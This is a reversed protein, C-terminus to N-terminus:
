HAKPILKRIPRYSADRPFQETFDSIFQAVEANSHIEGKLIANVLRRLVITNFQRDYVTPSNSGAVKVIFPVRLDDSAASRQPESLHAFDESTKDRWWHDATVILTTNTELRESLEGLIEALDQDALEINDFYGPKGQTAETGAYPGHPVSLHILKLDYSEDRILRTAQGMMFRNRQRQDAARKEWHLAPLSSFSFPNKIPLGGYAQDIYRSLCDSVSNCRENRFWSWEGFTNEDGFLREYPICWGAAGARKNMDRVDHVLSRESTRFYDKEARGSFASFRELFGPTNERFVRGYLLSPVAERTDQAPPYVNTAVFSESMLKEFAPLRIEDPRNTLAAYDLEDFVVWVVEQSRSDGAVVPETANVGFSQPTEASILHASLQLNLVIAAPLLALLLTSVANEWRAISFGSRATIVATSVVIGVPLVFYVIPRDTIYIWNVLEFSFSGFAACKLLILLMSIEAKGRPDRVNEALLFFLGFLLTTAFVLIFAASIELSSIDVAWSRLGVAPFLASKIPLLFILTAFSFAIGFNRFVTKM